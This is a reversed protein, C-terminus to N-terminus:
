LSIVAVLSVPLDQVCLLLFLSFFLLLVNGASLGLALKSHYQFRGACSVASTTIICTVGVPSPISFLTTDYSDIRRIMLKYKRGTERSPSGAGLRLGSLSLGASM